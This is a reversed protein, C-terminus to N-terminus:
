ARHLESEAERIQAEKIKFSGRKLAQQRVQNLEIQLHEFFLTTVTELQQVKLRAKITKLYHGLSSEALLSSLSLMAPALIFDNLSLGGTKLALVVAAADASVRAARLSNLLAPQKELREYLQDAALQIEIDFDAQYAAIRNQFQELTIERSQNLRRALDRRWLQGAAEGESQTQLADDVLRTILHDVLQMLLAEEYGRDKPGSTQKKSEFGIVSQGFSLLKRVPWTIVDRAQSLTGALGPIELLELLEALARKFTDYYHPHDLYDRRYSTLALEIETQLLENWAQDAQLEAYVPQLWSDWHQAIFQHPDASNDAQTLGQLTTRVRDILPDANLMEPEEVFHIFTIQPLESAPFRSQYRSQFSRRLAADESQMIKNICVILPVHLPALMELMKWVSQDAYKEKSVVLLLIDALGITRIVAETYGRADVSDFDPTDWILVPKLDAFLGAQDFTKLAYEDYESHRLTDQDVRQYGPFFQDLWRSEMQIQASVYGQPHVTYGALPSVGALPEPLLGNVVTSKGAQTPGFIVLNLLLGPRDAAIALKLLRAEALILTSLAASHHLQWENHDPTVALVARYRKELLRIFEIMGRM